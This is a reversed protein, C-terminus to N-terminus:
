VPTPTREQAARAHISLPSLRSPALVRRYLETQLLDHPDCRAKLAHFRALTDEGLFHAATYPSMTSDKAFYFRGGADLVLHDLEHALEALRQVGRASGPVPFDLALSYGDVAHSLLFRDPRHRKLVGLYSPLGRGHTLALMAGLTQAAEDRPIFSQYQILGGRGYGHQFNPSNDFLFNFAALSQRYH